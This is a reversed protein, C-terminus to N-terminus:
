RRSSSDSSGYGAKNVFCDPLRTDPTNSIGSEMNSLGYSKSFVVRDGKAVLVSGMFRNNDAEFRVVEDLRASVKDTQASASGAFVFAALLFATFQLSRHVSTTLM